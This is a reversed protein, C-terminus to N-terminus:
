YLFWILDGPVADQHVLVLGVPKKPKKCEDHRVHRLALTHMLRRNWIVVQIRRLFQAVISCQGYTILHATNLIDGVRGNNFSEKYVTSYFTWANGADPGKNM